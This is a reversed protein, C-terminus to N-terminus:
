GLKTMKCKKEINPLNEVRNQVSRCVFSSKWPNLKKQHYRPKNKIKLKIKATKPKASSKFSGSISTRSLAASAM